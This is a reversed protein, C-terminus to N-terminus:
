LAVSESLREDQALWVMCSGGCGLMWLLSYRGNGVLQGAVLGGSAHVIAAAPQSETAM